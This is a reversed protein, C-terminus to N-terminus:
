KLYYSICEKRSGTSQAQNNNTAHTENNIHQTLKSLPASHKNMSRKVRILRTNSPTDTAGQKNRKQPVRFARTQSPPETGGTPKIKKKSAM